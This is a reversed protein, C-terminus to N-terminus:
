RAGGLPLDGGGGPPQEAPPSGGASPDPPLRQWGPLWAQRDRLESLPVLLRFGRDLVAELEATRAPGRGRQGLLAFHRYGGTRAAQAPQATWAAPLKM